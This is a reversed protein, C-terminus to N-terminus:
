EKAEAPWVFDVDMAPIVLTVTPGGKSQVDLSWQVSMVPLIKGDITVRTLYAANGYRLDPVEIRPRAYDTSTV